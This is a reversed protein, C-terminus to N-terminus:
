QVRPASIAVIVYNNKHLLLSTLEIYCTSKIYLTFAM